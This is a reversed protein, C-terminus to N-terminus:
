EYLSSSEVPSGGSLSSYNDGLSANGQFQIQGAALITYGSGSSDGTYILTGNPFYFAGDLTASSAGSFDSSGASTDWFLIGKYTSSTPASLSLTAGGKISVAGTSIFTVGTGSFTVGGNITLGGSGLNYTGATL